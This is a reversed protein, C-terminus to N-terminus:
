LICSRNETAMLVLAVAENKDEKVIIIIISFSVFM